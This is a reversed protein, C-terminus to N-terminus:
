ALSDDGASDDGDGSAQSEIAELLPRGSLTFPIQKRGPREIGSFEFLRLGDEIGAQSRELRIIAHSSTREGGQCASKPESKLAPAMELLDRCDDAALAFQFEAEDSLRRRWGFAFQRPLVFPQWEGASKVMASPGGIRSAVGRDDRDLYDGFKATGPEIVDGEMGLPQLHLGHDRELKELTILFPKGLDGGIINAALERHHQIPCDM